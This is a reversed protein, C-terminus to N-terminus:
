RDIDEDDDTGGGASWSDSSESGEDSPRRPFTVVFDM